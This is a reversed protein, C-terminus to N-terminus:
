PLLGPVKNYKNGGDGYNRQIGIYTEANQKLTISNKMYNISYKYAAYESANHNIVM